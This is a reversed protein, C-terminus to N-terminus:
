LGCSSLLMAKEVVGAAGARRLAQIAKSTAAAPALAAPKAASDGLSQWEM